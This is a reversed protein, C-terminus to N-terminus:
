FKGDRLREDADVHQAAADKEAELTKIVAQQDAALQEAKGADKESKNNLWNFFSSVGSIIGLILKM